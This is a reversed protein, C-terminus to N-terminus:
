DLNWRQYTGVSASNTGWSYRVYGGDPFTVQTLRGWTGGYSFTYKQGNPLDIESVVSMPISVSSGFGCNQGSGPSQYVLQSKQPFTVTTTTWKVVINSGLGSITLDDGAANGLGSWSVVARKATDTYSGAPFTGGPTLLGTGSLV